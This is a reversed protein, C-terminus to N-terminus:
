FYNLNNLIKTSIYLQLKSCENFPHSIKEDKWIVLQLQCREGRGGSSSECEVDNQSM